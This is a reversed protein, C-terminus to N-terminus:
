KESSFAFKSKNENERIHKRYRFLEFLLYNLLVSIYFNFHNLIFLILFTFNVCILSLYILYLKM